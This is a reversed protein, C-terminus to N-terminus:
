LVVAALIQLELPILEVVMLERVKHLKELVVALIAVAVAVAVETPLETLAQLQQQVVLVVM